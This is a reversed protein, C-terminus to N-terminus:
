VFLASVDPAFARWKKRWVFLVYYIIRKAAEDFNLPLIKKITTLEAGKYVNLVLLFFYKEKAIM